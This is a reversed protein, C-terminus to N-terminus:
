IKGCFAPPTNSKCVDPRTGSKRWYDVLGLKTVVPVFGPDDLIPRMAPNWFLTPGPYERDAHKAAIRLADPHNGLRALLLAVASSQHDEPLALLATAASAKAGANGGALARLAAVIAARDADPLGLKSDQLAAVDGRALAKTATIGAAFDRTPALDIASDFAKAAEDLRGDTALAMALTLPTYLYLALMDHARRLTDVAEDMRGVSALFWGYQHYECGCDLRRAGVARKFLAERELWNNRDTLVAKIYLAESNRPDIAIAHDAAERGERRAEAKAQENSAAAAVKWYAGAVAAWGWSFDPLAAVVRQAPVLAKSGEEMEPNWHGECFQLYDRMVADPLPKGYTSAGFLGCRIINGVDVAIHRPLRAVDSKEYQYTSSWVTAGSREDVLRPITRITDGETQVTGSLAYAPGGGAPVANATSVGVVGDVNFASTIESDIAQRVTPPLDPTLAQFGALRVTMSHEATEPGQTWWWGGLSVALLSAAGAMIAVRSRPMPARRRPAAEIPAPAESAGRAVLRIQGVVTEIARDWGEFTDIWQRTSLEYAFADSPEVDELRLAMVPIRYRSALSLEKKIEDSDNAATSFVLVIAESDRIARVIAEQYNAGPAVDRAAIWCPLGHQEIAKCVALAQKRDKTAYSLFVPQLARAQDASATESQNV